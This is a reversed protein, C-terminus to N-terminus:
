KGPESEIDLSGGHAKIIDNTISLGLGTGQNGKKTTFFPQLIKDKMEEPIGPGNDEIEIIVNSGKQRTRATLRPEYDNSSDDGLESQQSGSEESSGVELSPSKKNKVHSKESLKERMAD